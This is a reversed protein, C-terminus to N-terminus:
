LQWFCERGIRVKKLEKLQHWCYSPHASVWSCDLTNLQVYRSYLVHQKRCSHQTCNVCSWVSDCPDCWLNLNHSVCSSPSCACHNVHCEQARSEKMSFWAPCSSLSALPIERGWWFCYPVDRAYHGSLGTSSVSVGSFVLHTQRTWCM